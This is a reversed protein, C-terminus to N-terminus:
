LHSEVTNNSALNALENQYHRTSDPNKNLWNLRETYQHRNEDIQPSQMKDISVM